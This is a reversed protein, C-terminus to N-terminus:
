TYLSQKNIISYTWFERERERERLEKIYNEMFDWNPNGDQDVPLLISIKKIDKPNASNGYSFKVMNQNFLTILFFANYKNLFDYKPTLIRTADLAWCKEDHYTSYMGSAEGCCIIVRGECNYKHYYGDIGNNNMTATITPYINKDTKKSTYDFNKVIRKGRKVDFFDGIYFEKWNSFDLKM